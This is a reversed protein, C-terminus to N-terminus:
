TTAKVANAIATQLEDFAPQLERFSGTESELLSGVLNEYNRAALGVEPCGYTGASGALKHAQAHLEALVERTDKATHLSCSLHEIDDLKEPLRRIYSRYLEALEQQIAEQDAQRNM